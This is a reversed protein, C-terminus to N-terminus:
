QHFCSFSLFFFLKLTKTVNEITVSSLTIPPQSHSHNNHIFLFLSLSLYSLPLPPLPCYTTAEYNHQHRYLHLADSPMQVPTSTSICRHLHLHLASNINADVCNCLSMVRCWRWTNAYNSLSMLVITSRRRSLHLADANTDTKEEERKIEDKM